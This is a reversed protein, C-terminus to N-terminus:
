ETRANHASLVAEIFEGKATVYVDPDRNEQSRKFESYRRRETEDHRLLEWFRTFSIDSERGAAVLQVGVPVEDVVGADFSAFEDTWNEPQHIRLEEKLSGLATEYTAGAPVRVLVDLDGKTLLGPVATSGMEEIEADPLVRRLRIEVSRYARAVETQIASSDVFRM